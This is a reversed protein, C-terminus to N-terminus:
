RITYGIKNMEVELTEQGGENGREKHIGHWPKSCPSALNLSVLRTVLWFGHEKKVWKRQKSEVRATSQDLGVLHQSQRVMERKLNLM